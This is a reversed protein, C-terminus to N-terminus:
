AQPVKGTALEDGSFGLVFAGDEVAQSAAETVEKVDSVSIKVDTIQGSFSSAIEPPIALAGSVTGNKDPVLPTGMPVGGNPGIMLWLLTAKGKKPQPVGDIKLDAVPQAQENANVISFTVTGGVGSGDVPKM